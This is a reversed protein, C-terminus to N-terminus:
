DTSGQGEESGKWIQGLMDIDVPSSAPGRHDFAKEPKRYPANGPTAATHIQRELVNSCTAASRPIPKM